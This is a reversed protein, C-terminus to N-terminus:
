ILQVIRHSVNILYVDLVIMMSRDVTIENWEM